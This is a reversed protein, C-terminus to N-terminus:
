DLADRRRKLPRGRNRKGAPIGDHVKKVLRDDAMRSIHESWETRRRQVWSTINQIECLERIRDNRVRAWKTKNIIRRLTKVETVELLQRTKATDTRTEAAYTLAPRVISKYIRVKAETRLYKNSWVTENLCGSIRSAKIAQHRVETTLDKSSTIQVGLYNLSTVQEVKM